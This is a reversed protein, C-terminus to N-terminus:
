LSGTYFCSFVHHIHKTDYWESGPFREIILLPCRPCPTYSKAHKRLLRPPHTLTLPSPLPSSQDQCLNDGSQRCQLAAPRSLSSLSRKKQTNSSEELQILVTLSGFISRSQQRISQRGKLHILEPHKGQKRCPAHQSEVWM